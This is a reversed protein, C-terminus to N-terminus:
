KKCRRKKNYEQDHTDISGAAGAAFDFRSFKLRDSRSDVSEAFVALAINVCETEDSDVTLFFFNGQGDDIALIIFDAM